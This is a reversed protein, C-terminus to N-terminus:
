LEALFSDLRAQMVIEWSSDAQRLVRYVGTRVEYFNIIKGADRVQSLKRIDEPMIQMVRRRELPTLADWAEQQYYGYDLMADSIEQWSTANQFIEILLDVQSVSVKISEVVEEVQEQEENSSINEVEPELKSDWDEQFGSPVDIQEQVVDPHVLIEADTTYCESDTQVTNIIEEQVPPTDAPVLLGSLYMEFVVIAEAFIAQATKGLKKMLREVTTGTKGSDEHIPPFQFYRYGKPSMRWLNQKEEQKPKRPKRQAEILGRVVAQNIEPLDALQNIVSQYKKRNRALLFITSPEIQALDQPAFKEFADAVQLYLKRERDALGLASVLRKFDSRKLSKQQTRLWKAYTIINETADALLWSAFNPQKEPAISKELNEVYRDFEEQTLTQEDIFTEFVGQIQPM